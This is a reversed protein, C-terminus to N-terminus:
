LILTRFNHHVKSSPVKHHESAYTTQKSVFINKKEPRDDQELKFLAGVALDLRMLLTM